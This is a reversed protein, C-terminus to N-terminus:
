RTLYAKPELPVFRLLAPRSIDNIGETRLPRELTMPYHASAITSGISKLFELFIISRTYQILMM